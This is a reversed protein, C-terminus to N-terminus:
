GASNSLQTSHQTYRRCHRAANSLSSKFLLIPWSSDCLWLHAFSLTKARRKCFAAPRLPPAGCFLFAFREGPFTLLCLPREMRHIFRRFAKAIGWAARVRGRLEGGRALM